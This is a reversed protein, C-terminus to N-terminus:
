SAAKAEVKVQKTRAKALKPLTITLVGKACSAKVEPSATDVEAPLPLVRFMAASSRESYVAKGKKEEKAAQRTGSITLRQPELGVEIDKDTFGPVQAKVTYANTTESVEVQLPLLLEREAQFWDELDRGPRRGSAEHIEFARRALANFTDKMHDFIQEPSVPQLRTAASARQAATAKAAM